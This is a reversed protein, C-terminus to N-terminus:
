MEFLFAPLQSAEEHLIGSNRLHKEYMKSTLNVLFSIKPTAIFALASGLLHKVFFHASFHLFNVLCCGHQLTIKIYLHLESKNFNAILM